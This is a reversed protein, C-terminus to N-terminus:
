KEIEGSWAVRSTLKNSGVMTEGLGLQTLIPSRSASGLQVLRTQAVKKEWSWNDLLSPRTPLGGLAQM